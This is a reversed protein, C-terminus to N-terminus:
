FEKIQTVLYAKKNSNHLKIFLFKLNKIQPLLIQLEIKKDQSEFSRIKTRFFGKMVSFSISRTYKIM